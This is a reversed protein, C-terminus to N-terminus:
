AGNGEIAPGAPRSPLVSRVELVGIAQGGIEVPVSEGEGYDTRSRYGDPGPDTYVEIRRDLLNVIWYNSIGGRAYAPGNEERDRDLTTLSVEALFGVDEPRPLRHEYDEIRGRVIAVDPEPEDFDPIRVPEEKRSSWGSPLRDELWDLVRRTSFGHEASMGMKEVMYGNILEVREPDDLSGSAIVREFEDVTIRHIGLPAVAPRPATITPMFTSM